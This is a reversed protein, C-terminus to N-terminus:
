LDARISQGHVPDKLIARLRHLIQGKDSDMLDQLWYLAQVVRMAPHGAWYLRSPAVTQFVIRQNGAQIPQLRADTIVTIRAPVSTSSTSRRGCAARSPPLEGTSRRLSTWLLDVHCKDSIYWMNLVSRNGPTNTRFIICIKSLKVCWSRDLPIQRLM